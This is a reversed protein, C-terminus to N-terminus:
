HVIARSCRYLSLKREEGIIFCCHVISVLSTLVHVFLISPNSLSSQISLKGERKREERERERMWERGRERERKRERM